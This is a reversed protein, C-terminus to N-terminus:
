KERHFSHNIIFGYCHHDKRTDLYCGIKMHPFMCSEHLLVGPIENINKYKKLLSLIGALARLFSSVDKM